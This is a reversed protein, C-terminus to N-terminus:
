EPKGLLDLSLFEGHRDYWIRVNGTVLIRGDELREQTFSAGVMNLGRISVALSPRQQRLIMAYAREGEILAFSDRPISGDSQWPIVVVTLLGWCLLLLLFYVLVRPFKQPLPEPGKGRRLM